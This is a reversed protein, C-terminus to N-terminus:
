PRHAIDQETVPPIDPLADSPPMGGYCSMVNTDVDKGGVMFTENAESAITNSLPGTQGANLYPPTYGARNMSLNVIFGFLISHVLLGLPNPRGSSTAILAGWTKNIMSFLKSVFEYTQPSSVLAFLIASYLSIRVQQNM